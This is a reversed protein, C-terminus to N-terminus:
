QVRRLWDPTEWATADAKALFARVAEGPATVVLRDETQVAAIQQRAKERDLFALGLRSGEIWVRVPTHVALQFADENASVLDLVKVEGEVMLRAKFSYADASDSAYRIRYGKGEQTIRYTEKGDASIWLGPLGADLVAQEDTVFPNLSVLSSCATLMLAGAALLLAKM